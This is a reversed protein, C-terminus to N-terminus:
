GKSLTDAFTFAQRLQAVDMQYNGAAGRSYFRWHKKFEVVHPSNWSRPVRAILVVKSDGVPVARVDLGTLRPKICDRILNEMWLKTADIDIGVLGVVEIASAGGEGGRQERVGYVLDGSANAMASVDRLFEKKGEDDSGPLAEKYDLQNSEPVGNIVLNEIDGAEIKDLRKHIM